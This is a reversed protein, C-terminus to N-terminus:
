SLDGSSSYKLEFALSTINCSVSIDLALSSGEPGTLIVGYPVYHFRSTLTKISFDSFKSYIESLDINHRYDVLGGRRNSVGTVTISTITLPFPRGTDSEWSDSEISGTESQLVFRLVSASSGLRVEASIVRDSGSFNNSTISLSPRKISKRSQNKIVSTKTGADMGFPPLFAETYFRSLGSEEEKKENQKTNFRKELQKRVRNQISGVINLVGEDNWHDHSPQECSRIYEEMSIAEFMSDSSNILTSSQLVFVALLINEDEVTVSPCWKGDTEYRILMGPNRTYTVVCSPSIDNSRGILSNLDWGQRDSIKIISKDVSAAAVYGIPLSSVKKDKIEMREMSIGPISGTYGDNRAYLYLDQILRFLPQMYSNSIPNGNNVSAQLWKSGYNPSLRPAYWRQILFLLCEDLSTMWKPMDENNKPRVTDLLAEPDIFPIIVDTGTDADSYMSLGFIDLIREIEKDDTIPISMRRDPDSEKSNPDPVGFYSIGRSEEKKVMPDSNEDEVLTAALLNRYRGGEHIRSYYIVLGIGVRFFTTKGYGYSGGSDVSKTDKGIQYILSQLRTNVNKMDDLGTLGTTGSDRISIFGNKSGHRSLLESEIYPFEKALVEPVFEGVGLDMRVKQSEPRAADLSNQVSERVLIDLVSMSSNKMMRLMTNGSTSSRDMGLIQIEM